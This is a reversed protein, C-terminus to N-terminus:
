VIPKGQKNVELQKINQHPINGLGNKRTNREQWFSQHTWLLNPGLNRGWLRNGSEHFFRQVTDATGQANLM